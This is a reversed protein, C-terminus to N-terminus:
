PLLNEVSTDDADADVLGNALETAASWARHGVDHLRSGTAVVAHAIAQVFHLGRAEAVDVEEFDGWGVGSDLEIEVKLGATRRLGIWKQQGDQEVQYRYEGDSDDSDDESIGLVDEFPAWQKSREFSEPYNTEAYLADEQLTDFEPTSSVIRQRKKPTRVPQESQRKSGADIDTGSRGTRRKESVVRRQSTVSFEAEAYSEEQDSLQAAKGNRKSTRTRKSSPRSVPQSPGAVPQDAWASDAGAKPPLWGHKRKSKSRPTGVPEEVPIEVDLGYDEFPEFAVSGESLGSPVSSAFSAEKRKGKSKSKERTGQDKEARAGRMIAERYEATGADEPGAELMSRIVVTDRVSTGLDPLSKSVNFAKSPRTEEPYEGIDISYNRM